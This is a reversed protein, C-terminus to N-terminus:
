NPPGGDYFGLFRILLEPDPDPSDEVFQPLYADLARDFAAAQEQFTQDQRASETIADVDQYGEDRLFQSFAKLTLSDRYLEKAKKILYRTFMQQKDPEMIAGSLTM